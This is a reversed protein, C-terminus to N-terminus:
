NCTSKNREKILRRLTEASIPSRFVKLVTGKEDLLRVRFAGHKGALRRATEISTHYGHGYEQTWCSIVFMIQLEEAEGHGLSNLIREQELYVADKLAPTEILLINMQQYRYKYKEELQRLLATTRYTGGLSDTFEFDLVDGEAVSIFFLFAFVTLLGKM